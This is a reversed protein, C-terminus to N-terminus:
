LELVTTSNSYRTFHLWTASLASAATKSGEIFTFKIDPPIVHPEVRSPMENSIRILERAVLRNGEPRM